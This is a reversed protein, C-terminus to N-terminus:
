ILPLYQTLGQSLKLKKFWKVIKVMQLVDKSTLINNEIFSFLALKMIDNDNNQM